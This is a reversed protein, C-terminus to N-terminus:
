LSEEDTMKFQFPSTGSGAYVSIHPFPIEVGEDDFREKIEQMISNKLGLYDTKSFWAGLLLEVGHKGFEKIVFLPEPNNLCYPNNKAIEMLLGKVKSLDEKYAVSIDINLRRIPFRTVNTLEEKIIKENPIRIYLNDFTRIKISLLDISLVIGMTDGIKIADNVAFPKESILFLGSIINSISTQSAFGIAIGAIGAAGLLATLKFGLLRLVTILIVFAGTYFIGKKILMAAQKSFRKKTVKGVSFNIIKVTVFGAVLVIFVRLAILLTQPDIIKQFTESILEIM